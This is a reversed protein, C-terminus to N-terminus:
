DQGYAVEGNTYNIFTSPVYGQVLIREAIDYLYSAEQQTPIPNPPEWAHQMMRATEWFLEMHHRVVDSKPPLKGFLTHYVCLGQLFTGSPSAHLHDANHFLAHWVDRNDEYVALFALGSPAIRPQQHAPLLPSLVRVYAKLGAYTLSTFNAMDELGTMNHTHQVTSIPEYAHTWLLVPTAGSFRLLPAWFQVLFDLSRGRTSARAPDRTNDNIVVYQWETTFQRGYYDTAWKLYESDERCPNFNGESEDAPQAYGPDVLRIDRGTVLQEPTCAGYDYITHKTHYTPGELIAASTSFQPYMANGEILLSPINGGGHLCSDQHRVLNDGALAQFFRPFDNFYLMSNGVFAINVGSDFVDDDDQYEDRSSIRVVILTMIGVVLALVVVWSRSWWQQRGYNKDSTSRKAKDANGGNLLASDEAAAFMIEPVIAM